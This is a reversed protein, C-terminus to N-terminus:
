ARSSAAVEGDTMPFIRTYVHMYAGIDMCKAGIM